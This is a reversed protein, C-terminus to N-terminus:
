DCDDGSFSFSFFQTEPRPQQEQGPRRRGGRGGGSPGMSSSTACSSAETRSSAVLPTWLSPNATDTHPKTFDYRPSSLFPPHQPHQPLLLLANWARFPVHNLTASPCNNTLPLLPLSPFSIRDHACEYSQFVSEYWQTHM